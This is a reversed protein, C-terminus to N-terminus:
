RSRLWADRRLSRDRRVRFPVGGVLCFVLGACLGVGGGVAFGVVTGGMDALHGALVEIATVCSFGGICVAAISVNLATLRSGQRLALALPLGLAFMALVAVAAVVIVMVALWPDRFWSVPHREDIADAVYAALMVFIPTTLSAILTALCLRGTSIRSHILNM